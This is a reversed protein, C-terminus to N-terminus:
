SLNKNREHKGSAIVEISFLANSDESKKRAASIQAAAGPDKYCRVPLRRM